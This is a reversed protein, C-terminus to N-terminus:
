FTSSYSGRGNWVSRAILRRVDKHVNLKKACLIWTVCADRAEKIWIEFMEVAQACVFFRADSVLFAFVGKESENLHGQLIKGAMFVSKRDHAHIVASLHGFFSAVYRFPAIECLMRMKEIPDALNGAVANIAFSDGLEAAAELLIFAKSADKECGRGQFYCRHLLFTGHPDKQESALTAWRFVMGPQKELHAMHGQAVADGQEAIKRLLTENGLMLALYVHARTDTVHLECWQKLARKVEAPTVCDVPFLCSLWLAEECDLRRAVKLGENFSGISFMHRVCELRINNYRDM